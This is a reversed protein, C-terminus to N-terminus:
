FKLGSNQELFKKYNTLNPNTKLVELNKDSIVTFSYKEAKLWPIIERPAIPSAKQIYETAQMINAFNGILLLRNEEDLPVLQSNLPLNYYREKNYRNFANRAENGFVNDVKNLVIVVFQTANADYTFLSGTPKIVLPKTVMTDTRPRFAPQNIVVKNTKLVSTDRRVATPQEIFPPVYVLTDEAPRVINLNQLEDEIQKRRGLVQIMNEAKGALPTNPHQQIITNLAIKAISDERQKVHYVAEIYLLQPSWFNTKHLSDANKKAALAEDFKGEIFLDYIGEYVKTVLAPPKNATPDIGTNLISAQKSPSYNKALLNKIENAKATNGTKIYSYYLNLLVESMGLYEPFRSRVAEYTQIASAYDELDNVYANGLVVLSSLIVENSVKMKEATLPINELLAEYSIAPAPNDTGTVSPNGRTNDPMNTRLQSTVDSGRRWNDVNPRNGWEQKFVGVGQKKLTPNYFYWEGKTQPNFFDNGSSRGSTSISTEDEKLGQQRRLQRALKKIYDTRENETMVAIRQLSDQRNIKTLSNVIKRLAEQRKTTREADVPLLEATQISDYYGAAAVYKKGAFSLDALRLYARNKSTNNSNAYKAGKILYDEAATPNNREMEMQAAM